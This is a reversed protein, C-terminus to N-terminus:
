TTKAKALAGSLRKVIQLIKEINRSNKGTNMLM